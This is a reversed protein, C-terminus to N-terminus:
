ARPIEHFNLGDGSLINSGREFLTRAYKLFKWSGADGSKLFRTRAWNGTSKRASTNDPVQWLDGPHEGRDNVGIV